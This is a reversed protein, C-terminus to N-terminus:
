NIKKTQKCLDLIENKDVNSIISFVYESNKWIITNYDINRVIIYDQGNEDTYSDVETKENDFDTAYHDIALQKFIIYKEADKYVKFISIDTTNNEVMEFGNPVSIDYEVFGNSDNEPVQENAIIHTHDEFHEIYFNFFAARVPRISLTSASLAVILALICAIRRGATCILPYYVKDRRKVLKKIKRETKASLEIDNASELQSIYNEYEEDCYKKLANSLNPYKNM